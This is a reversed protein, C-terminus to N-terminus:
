FFVPFYQRSGHLKRRCVPCEKKVMLAHELCGKCFAHGCITVMTQDNDDPSYLARFKETYKRRQAARDVASKEGKRGAGRRRRARGRGPSWSETEEGVAPEAQVETGGEQEGTRRPSAPAGDEGPGAGDGDAKEGSGRRGSLEAEEEELEEMLRFVDTHRRKLNLLCIACRPVHVDDEPQSATEPTARSAASFAQSVGSLPPSVSAARAEQPAPFRSFDFADGGFGRRLRSNQDERIFEVAEDDEEEVAIIELDEGGEDEEAGTEGSVSVSASVSGPRPSLRASLQETEQEEDKEDEAEHDADVEPAETAEGASDLVAIDDDDGSDVSIAAHHVGMEEVSEADEERERQVTETEELRSDEVGFLPERVGEFREELESHATLSSRSVEVGGPVPSVGQRGGDCGLVSSCTGRLSLPEASAVGPAVVQSAEEREDRPSDIYRVAVRSQQQVPEESESLEESPTGQGPVQRMRSEAWSLEDIADSRVASQTQPFNFEKPAEQPASSM